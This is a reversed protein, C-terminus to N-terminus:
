AGINNATFPTGGSSNGYRATINAPDAINNLLSCSTSTADIVAGNASYGRFTNGQISSYAENVMSIQITGPISAQNYINNGSVMNNRGGTSYVAYKMDRFTNGEITCGLCNNLYAGYVTAEAPANYVQAGKVVIGQCNNFYLLNVQSLTGGMDWWGGIVTLMSNASGSSGAGNVYLGYTTCGDARCNILQVDENGTNAATTMDFEYGIAMLATECALFQLDSVYQGYAFFGIGTPGSPGPGSAYCDRFVSSANGGPNTGGGNIDFGRWNATTGLNFAAIVHNMITNTAGLLSVQLLYNNVQVNTANFVATYVLALGVGGTPAVSNTISLDSISCGSLKNAATGVFQIASQSAAATSLTTAYIGMGKISTNHGLGATVGVNVVTNLFYNRAQLQVVGGVNQIANIVTQTAPSDNHAGNGLAGCWEPYVTMGVTCNLVCNLALPVPGAVPPQQITVIESGTQGILYGGNVPALQTQPAFTVSSSIKTPGPILLTAPTAGIVSIFRQIAVTDDVAGTCAAGAQRPNYTNQVQLYWRGGDTAVLITYANDASTTDAPNLIYWGGGGDGATTYGLTVAQSYLTKSLTRVSTISNLGLALNAIAGAPTTPPTGTSPGNGGLARYVTKNVDNLWDAQIVTLQNQFTTDM